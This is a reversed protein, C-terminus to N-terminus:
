RGLKLEVGASLDTRFPPTATAGAAAQVVVRAGILAPLLPLSATLRAAGTADTRLPVAFTPMAADFLVVCGGPFRVQQLASAHPLGFVLLAGQTAHSSSLDVQLTGGLIPDTAALTPEANGRACGNGIAKTSAWLDLAHPQHGLVPDEALFVLKGKVHAPAFFPSASPHNPDVEVTDAPRGDTRWLATRFDSMALFYLFRTGVATGFSTGV